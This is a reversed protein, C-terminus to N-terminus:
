QARWFVSLIEDSKADFFIRTLFIPKSSNLQDLDVVVKLKKRQRRKFGDVDPRFWFSLQINNQTSSFIIRIVYYYPFVSKSEM